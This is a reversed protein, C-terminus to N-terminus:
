SQKSSTPKKDKEILNLTYPNTLLSTLKKQFHNAKRPDENIYYEIAIETLFSCTVPLIKIIQIDGLPARGKTVHRNKKINKRSMM